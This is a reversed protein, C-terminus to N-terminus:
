DRENTGESEAKYFNCHNRVIGSQFICNKTTCSDCLNKNAVVVDESEKGINDLVDLIDQSDVYVVRGDSTRFRASHSRLKKIEAKVDDLPIGNGIIEFPRYDTLHHEVDHKIIEYYDKPIEIILKVTNSM